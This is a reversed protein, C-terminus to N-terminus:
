AAMAAVWGGAHHFAAGRAVVDALVSSTSGPLRRLESVINDRTRAPERAEGGAGPSAGGAGAGGAANPPPQRVAIDVLNSVQKAM